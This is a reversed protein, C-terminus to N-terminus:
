YARWFRLRDTRTSRIQFWRNLLALNARRAARSLPPGLQIDHVDILFFERHGAVERVLLNGPHLDPHTVGAEHLRAVFAALAEILERREAPTPPPHLLLYDDLPATDAL